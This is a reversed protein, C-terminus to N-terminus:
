PQPSGAAPTPPPFAGIARALALDAEAAARRAAGEAEAVAQAARRSELVEALTGEGAAFAAQHLRVAEAALPRAEAALADLATRAVAGAQWAAIVAREQARREARLQSDARDREAEALAIAAGGRDWLPLAIGLSGGYEDADAGRDFGVGLTLDPWWARRERQVEATRQGAQAALLRLRPHRGAQELAEELSPLASAAPLPEALTFDDPLRDGCWARLAQRAAALERQRAALALAATSEELRLRVQDARSREGAAVGQEVAQRLSKALAAAAQAQDLEMQALGLALVAERLGAELEFEALAAEGEAVPGGAQAAAIRASRKGPLELSQRLDAGWIAAEAREGARDRSRGSRLELEPNPLIGAQRQAAWAASRLPSALDPAQQRALRLLGALGLVAGEEPRPGVPPASPEPRPMASPPRPVPACGALVALACLGPALARAVPLPLPM